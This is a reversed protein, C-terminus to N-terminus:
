AWCVLRASTLCRCSCRRSSSFETTIFIFSVHFFVVNCCYSVHMQACTHLRVSPFVELCKRFSLHLSGCVDRNTSVYLSTSIQHAYFFKWFSLLEISRLERVLLCINVLIPLVIFILGLLVALDVKSTDVDVTSPDINRPSVLVACDTVFDVITLWCLIVVPIERMVPKMTSGICMRGIRLLLYLVPFFCLVVIIALPISSSGNAGANCFSIGDANVVCGGDQQGCPREADCDLARGKVLKEANLPLVFSCRFRGSHEHVSGVFSKGVAWYCMVDTSLDVDANDGTFLPRTVNMSVGGNSVTAQADIFNQASDQKPAAFKDDAKPTLTTL